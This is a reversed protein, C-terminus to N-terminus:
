MVDDYCCGDGGWDFAILSPEVKRKVDAKDGGDDNGGDGIADAM